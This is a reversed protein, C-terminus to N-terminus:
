SGTQRNIEDFVDKAPYAPMKGAEYADIRDEAEAAWLEDIRRRDPLEFSLILREVLEAREVPPLDLAQKLVEKSLPSM